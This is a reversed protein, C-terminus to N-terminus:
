RKKIIVGEKTDEIIFGLKYIKQRIKDADLFKKNKRLEERKKILEAVKKPIKIKEEKGLDLGLIKDFITALKYKESDNLKDERLVDWLFSLSKPTNLDDNLYSLFQKYALDINKRNIKKTKDLSKIKEKLKRLSNKAFDLAHFSFELPKRYHSTLFLYRLDLASYGKEELESLTYFGGKSKSIKEGKFTLFAGHLWYNVFKKGTAAESQAIENTHHIQIHDEGGTHIDFSEGLYKMSMASCEIHWGPFGIGWPSNWEQQRLGPKESFKWLAFDTINRKEGLPIRKGAKIGKVNLNALKGYNKFKSSDFYIGDSTKYTFGKEELKKILEIQEKIHESAKPWFNPEIFNMKKFDEKFVKFYFSAIEKATKKQERATKEIKDEGTDSDSTLHGVDTVNIVHVIKYGNEMLVRKLIDPFFYSRLNGIHQYWYVTPGCTYIKVKKDEIPKFIEKKRTLTNFLRIDM